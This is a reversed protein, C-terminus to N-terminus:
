ILFHQHATQNEGHKKRSGTQREPGFVSAYIHRVAVYSCPWLLMSVSLGLTVQQQATEVNSQNWPKKFVSRSQTAVKEARGCVSNHSVAIKRKLIPSLKQNSSNLM